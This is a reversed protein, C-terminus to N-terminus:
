VILERQNLGGGTGRLTQAVAPPLAAFAAPNRQNRLHEPGPTLTELLM